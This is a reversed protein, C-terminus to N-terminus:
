PWPTGYNTCGSLDTKAQAHRMVPNESAFNDHFSCDAFAATAGKGVYVAGSWWSKRIQVPAKIHHVETGRVSIM